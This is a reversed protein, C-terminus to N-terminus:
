HTASSTGRSALWSALNSVYRKTDSLLSPDRVVADSPAESVFSPSGSRPDWNYDAFHHFTSEAWARGANRSSEFAVAINFQRNTMKSRGTLVVRAHEDGIPARVGGEHPHSPLTRIPSADSRQLVPHLPQVAEVMQVDGNSGSHFNPWSITTTAIDDITRETLDPLQKSHFYHAAGVGALSCLSSGLDMHDRTVFLGGGSNRFRTIAGCEAATLGDGVDVAFLWLQDFDRRSLSTLLSDDEGTKTARNRATVVHGLSRLHEALLSFRDVNWDDENYAITTQLLIRQARAPEEFM